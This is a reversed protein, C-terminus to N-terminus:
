LVIQGDIRQAGIRVQVHADEFLDADDAFAFSYGIHGCVVAL